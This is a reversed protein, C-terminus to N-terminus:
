TRLRFQGEVNRRKDKTPRGLVAGCNPTLRGAALLSKVAKCLRYARM